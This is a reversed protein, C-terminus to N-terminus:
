YKLYLKSLHVRPEYFDLGKLGSLEGVEFGEFFCVEAFCKASLQLNIASLM